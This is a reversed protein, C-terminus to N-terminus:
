FLYIFFCLTYIMSLAYMYSGGVIHTTEEHSEEVVHSVSNHRGNVINPQSIKPLKINVGPKLGGNREVEHNGMKPNEKQVHSRIDQNVSDNDDNDHNGNAPINDDEPPNNNITIIDIPKNQPIRYIFDRHLAANRLLKAEMVLLKDDENNPKCYCFFDIDDDNDYYLLFKSRNDGFVEFVGRSLTNINVLEFDEAHWRKENKVPLFYNNGRVLLRQNYARIAELTRVYVQSFCNKPEITYNEPCLLATVGKNELIVHCLNINTESYMTNNDIKYQPDINPVFDCGRFQVNNTYLTNIKSTMLIIENTKEKKVFCHCEFSTNQWILPPLTIESSYIGNETNEKLSHVGRILKELPIIKKDKYVTNFCKAEYKKKLEEDKIIENKTDEDLVPCNFKITNYPTVNFEKVETKNILNGNNCLNPKIYILGISLFISAIHKPIFM